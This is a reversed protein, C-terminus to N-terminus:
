VLDFKRQYKYVTSSCVGVKEMIDPRFCKRQSMEIIMKIQEITITPM